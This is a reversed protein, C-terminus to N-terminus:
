QTPAQQLRRWAAALQRQQAESLRDLFLRRVGERHTARAEGLRRRGEDTIRAFVGRADSECGGREVLAQDCLRGVLRTLGSRSLLVADALQSMRLQGDPARDLQLLVEYSSLPLRHQEILEEDLIRVLTAHTRLFGGWAALEDESLPAGRAEQVAETSV